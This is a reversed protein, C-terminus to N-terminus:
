IGIHKVSKHTMLAFLLIVILNAERYSSQEKLDRMNGMIHIVIRCTNYQQVLNTHKLLTSNQAMPIMMNLNLAKEGKKDKNNM